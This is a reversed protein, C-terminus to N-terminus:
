ERNRKNSGIIRAVNRIRYDFKFGEEEASIENLEFRINNGQVFFNVHVGKQGFEKTDGVTLISKGKVSSLITELNKRQSRAIFLIHCNGLKKINPFYRIKVVHNRISIRGSAYVDDLSRGFPNRGVVALVLPDSKKDFEAQNPWEIYRAIRRLFVAKVDYETQQASIKECLVGIGVLLFLSILYKNFRL